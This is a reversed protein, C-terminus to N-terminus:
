DYIGQVFWEHESPQEYIRYLAGDDLAVDWEERTWATQTWWEGSTKWPGAWEVVNGRVGTATIHKPASGALTVRAHLAPRFLRMALRITEASVLDDEPPATNVPVMEFADPRHTNLPLPSGVNDPGVMGAIRALTIQLKAPPPTPPLFLGKQVRRPDVPEIRLTFATIPAEPSHHELHLQLLKLISQHDDLPVPFELACRYEKADELALRAELVRAAKSHSRLRTCLDHLVRALLFLLPELLSLAHELQMSEEFTVEPPPLRLPRQISGCALNRLYVGAKGLRELVGKEPLAALEECTKVGWGHLVQALGPDSPIGHGFLCTCPLAGLKNREEGPAAMTVGICNRALLIATDPNPAIALTAQLKRTFGFRSIESAIQHPSGMLKRLPTISFVVTDPSTQEVEPSFEHALSLLAAGTSDDNIAHLCAYM